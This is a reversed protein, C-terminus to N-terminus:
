LLCRSRSVVEAAARRVEAVRDKGLSEVVVSVVHQFFEDVTYAELLRLLQRGFLCM